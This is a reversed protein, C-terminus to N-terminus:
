RRMIPPRSYRFPALSSTAQTSPHVFSRSLARPVRFKRLASTLSPLTVARVLPPPAKVLLPLPNLRSDIALTDQTTRSAVLTGGWLKRWSSREQRVRSDRRCLIGAAVVYTSPSVGSSGALVGGGGCVGQVIRWGGCCVCHRQHRSASSVYQGAAASRVM